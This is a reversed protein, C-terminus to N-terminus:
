SKYDRHFAATTLDEIPEAALEGFLSIDAVFIVRLSYIPSNATPM